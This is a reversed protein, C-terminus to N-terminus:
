PQGGCNLLESRCLAVLADRSFGGGFLLLRSSDESQLLRLAHNLERRATAQDGARRALLGLQLRAMAFDQDLYIAVQTHHLAGARDGAGEHCLALLYHAGANLPDVDLLRRCEVEAQALDGRHTQLAARLLLVDPDDDSEDPLAQMAALAATFREKRLLDHATSLDWGPRLTQAAVHVRSARPSATLTQIRETARGIADFWATGPRSDSAPQGGAVVHPVGPRTDGDRRQYYFTGHSDRLHFETSVGRLTEAHGLFLYGGPKLARHIRAVIARAVEPTFYMLVNRFFVIDYAAPPWASPDADALNREEFRVQQRLEGDLTFERGTPTFWRRLIPAPTDRLSWASYRAARAKALVVPNVDVGVISVERVTDASERALIAISYAEEGSACGASLIHVPAVPSQSRRDPLATELLAKFQECHRFFYTEPVTLEAGLAAMEDAWGSEIAALYSQPGRGTVDVRRGLVEALWGLKADDFALGLKRAVTDRFQQVDAQLVTPM